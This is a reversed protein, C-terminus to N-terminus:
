WSHRVMSAEQYARLDAIRYRVRHDSIYDPGTRRLRWGELTRKSRGLYRAADKTDVTAMEPLAFLEADTLALSSRKLGMSLPRADSQQPFGGLTDVPAGLAFGLPYSGQSSSYSLPECIQTM